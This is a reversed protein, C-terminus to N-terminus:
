GLSAYFTELQGASRAWDFHRQAFAAAGAALRAALAPDRRLARVAGAIGAADARELVFADVGHRAVTGINSRPLIVPRGSAFFEPLKSPFRYNNFSDPEGPQVFCDALSLLPGLHRHQDIRGLAVVHPTAAAALAAPLACFDRGARLLTAPTGTANLEVVARHLEAMEARNTPHLNGHYFLVTHDPGWGLAARLDWPIPRAFFEPTAAPWFVARPQGPPLFECLRDLIATCGAAQRLFEPRHRPHSFDDGVLQALTAEPLTALDAASRGTSAELICGEDDELHVVLKACAAACVALSFRRVRESTTWAHVLDPGAGDAFRAAGTEWDAFAICRFRAGPHYRITEPHFPVAVLCDHGRAILENALAAVHLASNSTMDGYLVFLIRRPATTRPRPAAAEPARRPGLRPAQASLDLPRPNEEDTRIAVHRDTALFYRAGAVSHACLRLPGDGVPLNKAAIFGARAGDPAGPVLHPVDTRPLGYDCRVRRNGYHLWVEALRQDSHACWGQLRLSATITKAAPVEIAAHLVGPLAAIVFRRLSRWDNGDWSAELRAPHLGPPLAGQFAFGCEEAGPRARLTACVDPRRHRSHPLLVGGACVLRVAPPRGVAPHVCWGQLALQGAPAAVPPSGELEHAASDAPPLDAPHHPAPAVPERAAPDGTAAITFRRLGCWGGAGDAAELQAPHTGPAITGDISFGYETAPDLHPFASCVDERRRRQSAGFLRDTCRLRIAPAAAAGAHACWGDLRLMGGPAFAPLPTELAFRFEDPGNM